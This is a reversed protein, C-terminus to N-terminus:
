HMQKGRDGEEKGKELRKFKRRIACQFGGGGKRIIYINERRGKTNQDGVEGQERNNRLGKDSLIV